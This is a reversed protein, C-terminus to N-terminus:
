SERKSAVILGLAISSLGMAYFAFRVYSMGFITEDDEDPPPQSVPTLTLTVSTAGSVSVSKGAVNFGEKSATILHSGGMVSFQTRGSIDTTQELADDVKVTVGIMPALSQDQCYVLLAYPGGVAGMTAMEIVLAYTVGREQLQITGDQAIYGTREVHYKYSVGGSGINRVLVDTFVIWGNATQLQNFGTAISSLRVQVSTLDSWTTGDIIHFTVRSVGTTPDAVLSEIFAEAQARTDYEHATDFYGEVWIKTNGDQNIGYYINFQEGNSATYVYSLRPEGVLYLPLYTGGLILIFGFLALLLGRSNM